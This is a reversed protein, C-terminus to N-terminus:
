VRCYTNTCYKAFKLPPPPFGLTGGRQILGQMYKNSTKETGLIQTTVSVQNTSSDGKGGFFETLVQLVMLDEQPRACHTCYM